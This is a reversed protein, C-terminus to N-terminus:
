VGNSLLWLISSAHFYHYCPFMTNTSPRHPSTGCIQVMVAKESDQGKRVRAGSKSRRRTDGARTWSQSVLQAAFKFESLRGGGKAKKWFGSFTRLILSLFTQYPSMAYYYVRSFVRIFNEIAPVINKRLSSTPKIAFIDFLLDFIDSLRVIEWLFKVM